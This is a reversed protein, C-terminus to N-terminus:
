RAERQTETDRDRKKERGGEIVGQRGTESPSETTGRGGDIHRERRSTERIMDSDKARAIPM